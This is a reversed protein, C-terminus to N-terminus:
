SPTQELKRQSFKWEMTGELATKGAGEGVMGVLTRSSGLQEPRGLHNKGGFGEESPSCDPFASGTSLTKGGTEGCCKSLLSPM